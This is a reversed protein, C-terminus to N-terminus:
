KVFRIYTNTDGSRIRLVYSGENLNAVSLAHNKGTVSVRSNVKGTIDYITIEHRGEPTETFLTETVPNPYVFVSVSEKENVSTNVLFQSSSASCGNSDIGTVAYLGNSLAILTDSIAGPLLNGDLYWEYSTYGPTAFLTDGSATIVPPAPAPFVVMAAITLTDTGSSNGVILTVPYTGPATYCIGVPNQQNSFSTTAGQFIWFWSTPNNSSIDTFDVCSNICITSDSVSFAAVPPPSAVTATVLFEDIAFGPDNATFTVENVFRFGFMLSAQGSFNSLSIMSTTWNGQNSFQGSSSVLIWSNGQDISYYFEGYTNNGGECLWIFSVNVSDYGVTNIAQTMRTFNYEDNGCLGNAALFSCNNIGAAQAADSSLHMYNTTAGGTISAPQLPTDPITFTTPFGGCNLQGSGGTFFNNVVWQNYGAAASVGSEDTTNLTFELGGTEFNEYVLTDQAYTTVTALLLYFMLKLKM